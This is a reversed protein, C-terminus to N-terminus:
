QPSAFSSWITVTFSSLQPPSLMPPPVEAVGSPGVGSPATFLNLMVHQSGVPFHVSSGVVSTGGVPLPSGSQVVVPQLKPVGSGTGFGTAGAILVQTNFVSRSGAPPLTSRVVPVLVALM